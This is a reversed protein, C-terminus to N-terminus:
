DLGQVIRGRISQPCTSLCGGLKTHLKKGSALWASSDVMSNVSCGKM